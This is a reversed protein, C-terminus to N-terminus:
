WWRPDGAIGRGGFGSDNIRFDYEDPNVFVEEATKGYTQLDIMREVMSENLNQSFDALAYTVPSSFTFGEVASAGYIGGTSAAADYQGITRGLISNRFTVNAIPSKMEILYRGNDVMDNVTCYELIFSNQPVNSNNRVLGRKSGYITSNSFVIDSIYSDNETVVIHYDGRGGTFDVISNNIILSDMKSTSRFRILNRDFKSIICNDFVLKSIEGEGNMNIFHPAWTASAAEMDGSPAGTLEINVFKIYDVGGKFTLSKGAEVIWSGEHVFTKNGELVVVDGNTAGLIASALDDGESVFVDGEVRLNLKGRVIDGNMLSVEYNVNNDPLVIGTKLGGVEETESIDFDTSESGDSFSLHTVNNGGLWVLEVTKEAIVGNQALFGNFLNEEPVDIVVEAFYSDMSSVESNAKIRAYYKTGGQLDFMQFVSETTTESFVPASYDLSDRSVEVTYSVASPIVNWTLTANVGSVSAEFSTPRFIRPAEMDKENDDECSMWVFSIALLALMYVKINQMSKM